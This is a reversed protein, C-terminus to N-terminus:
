DEVAKIIKISKILEKRQSVIFSQFEKPDDLHKDM